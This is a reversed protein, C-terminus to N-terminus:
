PREIEFTADNLPLGPMVVYYKDAVPDIVITINGTAGELDEDEPDSNFSDDAVYKKPPQHADDDPNVNTQYWRSGISLLRKAVTARPHGYRTGNSAISCEPDLQTVFDM